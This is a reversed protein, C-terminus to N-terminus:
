TARMTAAPADNNGLAIAFQRQSVRPRVRRRDAADRRNRRRRGVRRRRRRRSERLIIRWSIGPLVVLAPNADAGSAHRAPGVRALAGNTDRGPARREGVSRHSRPASRRRGALHGARPRRRCAFCLAASAPVRLCGGSRLRAHGRRRSRGLRGGARRRARAFRVFTAHHWSSARPRPQSYDPATPRRAYPGAPRKQQTLLFCRLHLPRILRVIAPTFAYMAKQLPHARFHVCLERAADSSLVDGAPRSGSAGSQSRAGAPRNRGGAAARGATEAFVKRHVKGICKRAVRGRQDADGDVFRDSFGHDAVFQAAPERRDDVFHERAVARHPQDDHRTGRRGGRRHRLQRRLRRPARAPDTTGNRFASALEDPEILDNKAGTEARRGSRDWNNATRTSRTVSCPASRPLRNCECTQRAAVWPIGASDVEHGFGRGSRPPLRHVYEGLHQQCGVPEEVRDDVRHRLDHQRDILDYVIEAPAQDHQRREDADYEQREVCRLELRHQFHLPDRRLDFLQLRAVFFVRGFELLLRHRQVFLLADIGQGSTPRHQHLVWKEDADVVHDHVMLRQEFVLVPKPDATVDRGEIGGNQSRAQGMAVNDQEHQVRSRHVEAHSKATHRGGIRLLRLGLAQHREHRRQHEAKEPPLIVPRRGHDQVPERVVRKRHGLREVHQPLRVLREREGVASVDDGVIQRGVVYAAFRQRAVGALELPADLFFAARM